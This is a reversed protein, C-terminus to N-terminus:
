AFGVALNRPIKHLTGDTPVRRICPAFQKIHLFRRGVANRRAFCSILQIAIQGATGTLEEHGKAKRTAVDNTEMQFKQQIKRSDSASDIHQTQQQLFCNVLHEDTRPGGDELLELFSLDSSLSAPSSSANSGSLKGMADDGSTTTIGAAQKELRSLISGGMRKRSSTWGRVLVLLSEYCPPFYNATSVCKLSYIMEESFVEPSSDGKGDVKHLTFRVRLSSTTESDTKQWQRLVAYM